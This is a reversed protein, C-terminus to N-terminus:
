RCDAVRLFRRCVGAQRVGPQAFKVEKAVVEEIGSVRFRIFLDAWSLREM